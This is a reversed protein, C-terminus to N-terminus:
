RRRHLGILLPVLLFRIFTALTATVAVYSLAWRYGAPLDIEWLPALCIGLAAYFGLTIWRVCAGARASHPCHHASEPRGPLDSRSQYMVAGLKLLPLLLLAVGAAIKWSLSGSVLGLEIVSPKRRIPEFTKRVLLPPM